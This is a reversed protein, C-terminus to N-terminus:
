KHQNIKTFDLQFVNKRKPERETTKTNNKIIKKSKNTEISCELEGEFVERHTVDQDRDKEYQIYQEYDLGMRGFTFEFLNQVDVGTEKVIELTMEMLLQKQLLSYIEIFLVKKQHDAGSKGVTQLCVAGATEEGKRESRTKTNNNNTDIGGGLMHTFFDLITSHSYALLSSDISLKKILEEITKTLNLNSYSIQKPIKLDTQVSKNQLTTKQLKTSASKNKSKQSFSHSDKRNTEPNSAQQLAGSTLILTKLFHKLSDESSPNELDISSLKKSHLQRSISQGVLRNVFDDIKQPIQKSAFPLQNIINKVLMDVCNSEGFEHMKSNTLYPDNADSYGSEHSKRSHQPSISARANRPKLENLFQEKNFSQTKTMTKVQNKEFQGSLSGKLQFPNAKSSVTVTSSGGERSDVQISKGSKQFALLEAQVNQLMLVVEELRKEAKETKSKKPKSLFGSTFSNKPTFSQLKPKSPKINFDLQQQYRSLKMKSNDALYGKLRRSDVSKNHRSHHSNNSQQSNNRSLTKLRNESLKRQHLVKKHSSSPLQSTSHKSNKRSHDRSKSYDKKKRELIGLNGNDSLYASNQYNHFSGASRTKLILGKKKRSYENDEQFPSKYNEFLYELNHLRNENKRSPSVFINRPYGAQLDGFGEGGSDSKKMNLIQGSKHYIKSMKPSGGLFDRRRLRQVNDPSEIKSAMKSDYKTGLQSSFRKMRGALNNPRNLYYGALFPEEISSFNNQISQVGNLSLKKHTPAQFNVFNLSKNKSIKTSFKKYDNGAERNMEGRNGSDSIEGLKKRLRNFSHSM